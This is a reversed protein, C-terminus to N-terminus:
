TTKVLRDSHIPQSSIIIISAVMYFQNYPSSCARNYLVKDVKTRWRRCATPTVCGPPRSLIWVLVVDDRPSHWWRSNVKYYFDQIKPWLSQQSGSEISAYTYPQSKVIKIFFCQLLGCVCVPFQPESYLSITITGFQMKGPIVVSWRSSSGHMAYGSPPTRAAPAM